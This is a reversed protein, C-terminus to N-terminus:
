QVTLGLRARLELYSPGIAFQVLERTRQPASTSVDEASSRIVAIARELDNALLFGARDATYDVASMWRKLDLAKSDELLQGVLEGLESTAQPGLTQKLINLAQEVDTRMDPAIPFSPSVAKIAAFLWTKLISPSVTLQRLHFGTRF